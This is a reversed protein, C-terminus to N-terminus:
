KLELKTEMQLELERPQPWDFRTLSRHTQTVRAAPISLSGVREERTSVAIFFSSPMVGGQRCYYYERIFICVYTPAYYTDDIFNMHMTLVVTIM